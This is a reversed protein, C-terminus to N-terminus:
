KGAPFRVELTIDHAASFEAEIITAGEVERIANPVPHGDLTVAPRGSWGRQARTSADIRLAISGSTRLPVFHFDFGGRVATVGIPLGHTVEAAIALSGVRVALQETTRAVMGRPLWDTDIVRNAVSADADSGYGLSALALPASATSARAIAASGVGLDDPVLAPATPEFMVRNGEHETVAGTGPHIEFSRKTVVGGRYYYATADVRGDRDSDIPRGFPDTLEGYNDVTVDVVRGGSLVREGRSVNRIPPLPGDLSVLVTWGLEDPRGNGDEDDIEGDCARDVYYTSVYNRGGPWPCKGVSKGDVILHAELGICLIQATRGRDDTTPPGLAFGDDYGDGDIDVNPRPDDDAGCPLGSSWPNTPIWWASGSMMPGHLTPLEDVHKPPSACSALVGCLSLLLMSDRDVAM